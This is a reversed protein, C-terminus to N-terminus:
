CVVLPFYHTHPLLLFCLFVTTPGPRRRRELTESVTETGSTSLCQLVRIQIYHRIIDPISVDVVPGDPITGNWVVLKQSSDGFEEVRTDCRGVPDVLGGVDRKGVTDDFHASMLVSTTVCSLLLQGIKTSKELDTMVSVCCFHLSSRSPKHSRNLAIHATTTLLVDQLSLFWRIRRPTM